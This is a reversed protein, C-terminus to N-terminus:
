LIVMNLAPIIIVILAAGLNSWRLGVDTETLGGAVVICGQFQGFETTMKIKHRHRHHMVLVVQLAIVQLARSARVQLVPM